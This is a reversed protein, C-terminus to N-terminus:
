DTLYKSEHYVAWDNSSFTQKNPLHKSVNSRIWPARWTCWSEQRPSRAREEAYRGIQSDNVVPAGEGTPVKSSENAWQSINAEWDSGCEEMGDPYVISIEGGITNCLNAANDIPSFLPLSHGVNASGQPGGDFRHSKQGPKRTNRSPYRRTNDDHSGGGSGLSPDLNLRTDRHFSRPAPKSTWSTYIYSVKNLLMLASLLEIGLVAAATFSLATLDMTALKKGSNWLVFHPHVHSSLPGISEFPFHHSAYKPKAAGVM